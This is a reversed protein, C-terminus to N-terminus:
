RQQLFRGIAAPALLRWSPLAGVLGTCWAIYASGLAQLTLIPIMVAAADPRPALQMAALTALATALTALASIWTFAAIQASALLAYGFVSGITAPVLSLAILRFLPVVDAFRAGLIAPILWDAVAMLAAVGLLVSVTSYLLLASAFAAGERRNTGYLRALMPHCVQLGIQFISNIGIVLRLVATLRGVQEAPMYLAAIPIAVTWAIASLVSGVGLLIAARADDGLRAWSGPASWAASVERGLLAWGLLGFVLATSAEVAPVALPSPWVLLAPILLGVGLVAQGSRLLSNPAFWGSARFVWGCAVAGGVFISAQVLVQLVVAREGGGILAGAALMTPIAAVALALKLATMRAILGARLTSGPPAQAYRQIAVLEPGVQVFSLLMMYLSWGIGVLGLGAPGLLRGVIALTAIQSVRVALEGGGSAALNAILNAARDPV